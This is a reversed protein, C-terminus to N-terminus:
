EADVTEYAMRVREQKAEREAQAAEDKALAKALAAEAKAKAELAAAEQADKERQAREADYETLLMGGKPTYTRIARELEDRKAILMKLLPSDKSDEGRAEIAKKVAKLATKYLPLAEDIEVPIILSNCRGAARRSAQFKEDAVEAADLIARDKETFPEALMSATAGNTLSNLARERIELLKRRSEMENALETDANVEKKWIIM